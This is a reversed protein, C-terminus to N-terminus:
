RYLQVSPEASREQIQSLGPLIGGNKEETSFIDSCLQNSSAKFYFLTVKHTSLLGSEIVSEGIMKRHASIRISEEGRSGSSLCNEVIFAESFVYAITTSSGQLSPEFVASTM